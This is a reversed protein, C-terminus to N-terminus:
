STFIPHNPSLIREWGEFIKVQSGDDEVRVVVRVGSRKAAQELADRDNDAELPEVIQGVKGAYTKYIM